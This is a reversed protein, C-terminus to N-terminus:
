WPKPEQHKLLAARLQAPTLDGDAYAEYLLVVEVSLVIGMAKVNALANAVTECAM